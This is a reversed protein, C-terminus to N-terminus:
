KRTNYDRGIERKREITRNQKVRLRRKNRKIKITKMKEKV